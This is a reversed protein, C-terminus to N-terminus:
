IKSRVLSSDIVAADTIPIGHVVYLLNVYCELRNHSIICVFYLPLSFCFMIELADSM